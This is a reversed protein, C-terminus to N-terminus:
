KPIPFNANTLKRGGSTIMVSGLQRGERFANWSRVFLATIEGANLREDRGVRIMRNRLALVPDGENLNAGSILADFFRHAADRDIEAFLYFCAGAPGGTGLRARRVDEGRSTASDFGTVDKEYRALLEAHTPQPKGEGGSGMRNGAEWMAIRRVIAAAAARHQTNSMKLVDSFRRVAGIDLLPMVSPDVDWAILMDVAIDAQVVAMLRHQGDILRNNTDVKITDGTMPWDGAAIDRAYQSVKTPRANRQNEANRGLLERAFAPTITKTEIRFAM